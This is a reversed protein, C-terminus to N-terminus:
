EVMQAQDHHQSAPLTENKSMVNKRGNVELFDSKNTSTRHNWPIPVRKSPNKPVPVPDVADTYM